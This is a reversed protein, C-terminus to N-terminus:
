KNQYLRILENTTKQLRENELDNKVDVLKPLKREDILAQILETFYNAIKRRKSSVSLLKRTTKGLFKLFFFNNETSSTTDSIGGIHFLYESEYYAHNYGYYELFINLLKATDYREYKLNMEKLKNKIEENLEHWEMRNFLLGTKEMVVDLDKVRYMTCYSAGVLRGNKAYFHRGQLRNVGDYKLGETHLIPEGSYLASKSEIEKLFDKIVDGAFFIDSDMFCFFTKDKDLNYIENLVDHHPVIKNTKFIYLDLRPNNSVARELFLIEEDTCSNSIIRLRIDSHHLISETFKWLLKVTNPTYIINFVIDKM